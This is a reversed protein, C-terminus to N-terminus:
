GAAMGTGEWLGWSLAQGPLGLARRRAILADLAANAAAYAAQGPAGLVGAASSFVIFAAPDHARTLEDLVLAGGAKAARVGDLREPTLETLVGDDLTGAAHVVAGLPRDATIRELLAAVQARDTVDCAAFEVAGGTAATLAEAGPARPGTRSVALVHRVGHARVLHRVVEAGVGGTGGTVLVTSDPAWPLPPLEAPPAPAPTLRPAFPVGDRLALQPEGAAALGALADPTPVAGTAGTDLLVIRGPYESQASRLLGWVGAADVDVEADPGAPGDATDVAVAGRSVVVLVREAREPDAVFEQAVRLAERVAAGGGAGSPVEWIEYPPPTGAPDELREWEIGYLPLAEEPPLDGPVAARLQLREVSLVPRGLEDALDLSVADTGVATVRARVSAAGTSWLRVGTWAFPLLTRPADGAADGGTGDGDGAGADADADPFCYRTAHLVADFLAPHLGYGDTGPPPDAPLAVEAYVEGPGTGGGRLRVSRLGRFAPGYGLGQEALTEYSGDLDVPETDPVPWERAWAHEPATTAPGAPPAALTGTAHTTWGPSDPIGSYVTLTRRGDADPHDVVCRLTTDAGSEPLRLPTHLVLEGVTGPVGAQDAAHVALDVLATGPVVVRGFVRHDALWPQAATSLRGSLVTGAGESGPVDLAAAIWPHTSPSLGHAAPDTTRDPATLWYRDRQFPYTPLDTRRGGGLLPSWDVAVGHCHLRGLAALVGVAEERGKRLVPVACLSEAGVGVLSTLTADAGLELVASVGLGGLAAVNDGFLVASRLHEVWYGVEGWRDAVGGSVNSLGTVVPRRFEVGELVGRFEELVPEMRVSHFAHSVRLRRARWGREGAAVVVAEVGAVDGSVVTSSVSNVAGVEVGSVGVLLEEVGGRGVGVSAMAGGEALGEMLRARAGVVVCADELSWVGAAWAATVEGLSHGGVVEVEVGFSRVLEWLGVELAFLAPQAVGTRGLVGEDLVGVGVVDVGLLGVVRDFAGAFVPFREYLERGMGVRQSGQGGF